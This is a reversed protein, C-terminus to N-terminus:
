PRLSLLMCRSIYYLITGTAVGASDIILDGLQANRGAVFLQLVETLLAFLLLYGLVVTRSQYYSKQQLAAISLMVFMFFHGTKFIDPIQILPKFKFIATDFHAKLITETNGSSSSLLSNICDKFTVPMLTAVVITLALAVVIIEQKNRLSSLTIPVAIWFIVCLWLFAIVKSYVQFSETVVVPQLSINKIWLTGKARALQASIKLSDTNAGTTFVVENHTWENTGLLSILVHTPSRLSMESQAYIALIVRATMWREPGHKINLTKTDFSVRLQQNHRTVPVVRTIQILDNSDDTHLRFGNESTLPSVGSRSYSWESSHKSFSTNQLIEPGINEYKEYYNFFLVSIISLLLLAALKGTESNVLTAFRM